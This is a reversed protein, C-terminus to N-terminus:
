AIRLNLIGPAVSESGGYVKMMHHKILRLAM